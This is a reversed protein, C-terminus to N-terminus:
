APGISLLGFGYAKGPGIGKELGVRFRTTDRIVLRGEFVVGQFTRGTSHSQVLEAAGLAAVTVHLLEFGFEEGKKALWAVLADLSHLPVRRGNRRQGEPGSKTAIKRTPNARLRFRLVTGPTLKAYVHGVPKVAPNQMGDDVLYDKPLFSWDPEPRSQVYLLLRGSHQQHDLRWLVQWYARAKQEPDLIEPFARMITRHLAQPDRLDRQVSASRPELRILTLYM